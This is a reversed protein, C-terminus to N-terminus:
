QSVAERVGAVLVVEEADHDAVADLHLEHQAAHAPLELGVKGELEDVGPWTQSNFLNYHPSSSSNQM